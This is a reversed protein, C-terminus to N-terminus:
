LMVLVLTVNVAMKGNWIMMYVKSWFGPFPHKQLCHLVRHFAESHPMIDPGASNALVFDIM